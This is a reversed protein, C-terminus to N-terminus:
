LCYDNGQAHCNFRAIAEDANREANRFAVKSKEAAWKELEAEFSEIYIACEEAEIGDFFRTHSVGYGTVCFPYDPVDDNLLSIVPRLLKCDDRKLRCNYVKVAANYRQMAEQNRRTEICAAYSYLSEVYNEYDCRCFRFEMDSEFRGLSPCNPEIPEISDRDNTSLSFDPCNLYSPGCSM